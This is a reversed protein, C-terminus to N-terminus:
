DYQYDWTVEGGDAGISLEFPLGAYGAYGADAQV